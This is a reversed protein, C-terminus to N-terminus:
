SVGKVLYVKLKDLESVWQGMTKDYLFRGLVKLALPHGKVYKVFEHSVEEFERSSAKEKFAYFCFLELSQDEKLFYMDHIEDVRHSRLLQKDKGTFIILSGPFFWTPSGALAELQQHDDVDDLVLLIPRSSMMKKIKMAGEGVSNYFNLLYKMAKGIMFLQSM